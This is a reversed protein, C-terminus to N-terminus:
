SRGKQPWVYRRVARPQGQYGAVGKFDLAFGCKELVRQSAINEELVIGDIRDTKLKDVIFPLFARLAETAYGKGTHARAIHYGVEWGREAMCAQVYGINEGTKTLLPYLYPGDSGKGAEMLFAVVAQAEELTDFVEDPVFRRNDEDQSNRLIDGAMDATLETIVLRETEMIM